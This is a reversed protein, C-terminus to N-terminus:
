GLINEVINHLSEMEKKLEEIPIQGPASTKGVCGFTISSGFFEGSVRTKVGYEGMSMAVVPVHIRGCTAENVTLMLNKVDAERHPMVALKVIDMGASEMEELVAMMDSGAPTGDFRHHSGIVVKGNEKIHKALEKMQDPEMFYELDIMQVTELKSVMTNLNVYDEVTIPKNGGEKLSRFTFLIPIDGLIDSIAALVEKVSEFDNLDNYFDCRWEVLDPAAEACRKADACIEEKSCGVIPVCIKPIGAGIEVPGAKVTKHDIM